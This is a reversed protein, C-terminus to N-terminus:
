HIFSAIHIVAKNTSLCLAIWNSHVIADRQAETRQMAKCVV